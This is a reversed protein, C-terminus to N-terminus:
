IAGMSSSLAAQPERLGSQPNRTVSQQDGLQSLDSFLRADLGSGLLRGFPPVPAAGPIGLPLVSVFRASSQLTFAAPALLAASLFERRSFVSLDRLDSLNTLNPQAPRFLRAPSSGM